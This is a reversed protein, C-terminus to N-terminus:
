QVKEVSQLGVDPGHHEGDLIQVPGVTTM